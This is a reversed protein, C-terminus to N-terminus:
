IGYIDDMDTIAMRCLEGRVEKLLRQKIQRVREPTIDALIALQHLSKSSTRRSEEPVNYYQLLIFKDRARAKVKSLVKRLLNAASVDVITEETQDEVPLVSTLKPELPVVTNLNETEKTEIFEHKEEVCPPLKKTPHKEEIQLGCHVCEYIGHKAIKRQTKQKHSPIHVLDSNQIEEFMEKRIWHAAYTLFRTPQEVDFKDIATMLGLNGASTLQKIRYPDKTISKAMKVVFRLNGKILEDRAALDRPQGCQICYSPTYFTDFKARCVKCITTHHEVVNLIPTGCEICYKRQVRNPIRTKCKSCFNYRQLLNREEESSLISNRSLDKYYNQLVRDTFTDENEM